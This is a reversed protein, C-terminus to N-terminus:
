PVPSMNNCSVNYIREQPRSEGTVYLVICASLLSFYNTIKASQLNMAKHFMLARGWHNDEELLAM